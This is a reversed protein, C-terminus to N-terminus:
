RKEQSPMEGEAEWPETVFADFAGDRTQVRIVDGPDVDARSRVPEGGPHRTVVAYGRALVSLPSLAQLRGALGALRLAERELRYRSSARLRDEADDVEQRRRHVGELPRAFPPRALLGRLADHADELRSRMALLLREEAQAARRQMESFDPAILEAAASPTPARLDAAFDAITVDTEHGVASIVPLRSAAIARAVAEANFAWLDELSGGGRALILVDAMASENAAAIAQCLSEPAGDGQVLAPVVIVATAPCRRRIITCIDHIAAGTPSTIVAVLRPFVPIPRKREPAFLGEAELRMKLQEFALYLSGLGDPQADDAILQYEGRREYIDLHGHALIQMGAELTFPLLRAENRFMVCRLCATEDKMGFYVHGSSHYTVNSLEGRVWIEQLIDDAALLEALYRTLQTVTLATRPSRDAWLPSEPEYEFSLSM